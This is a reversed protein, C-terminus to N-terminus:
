MEIGCYVFKFWFRIAFFLLANLCLLLKTCLVFMLKLLVCFCFLFFTKQHRWFSGNSKGEKIRLSNSYYNFCSWSFESKKEDFWSAHRNYHLLQNWSKKIQKIEKKKFLKLRFNRSISANALFNIERIIKWTKIKGGQQTISCLWNEM